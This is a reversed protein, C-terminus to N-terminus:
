WGLGSALRGRTCITSNMPRASRTPELIYKTTRTAANRMALETAGMERRIEEKRRM